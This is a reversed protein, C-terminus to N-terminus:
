GATLRKEHEKWIKRVRWATTEFKMAITTDSLDNKLECIMSKDHESLDDESGWRKSQSDLEYRELWRWMTRTNVSHKTAMDTVTMTECDKALIERPPATSRSQTRGSPYDSPRIKYRGVLGRVVSTTTGLVKGAGEQSGAKTLAALVQRKTFKPKM